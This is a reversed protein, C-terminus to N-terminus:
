FKEDKKWFNLIYQGIKENFEDESLNELFEKNRMAVEVGGTEGIREVVASVDDSRLVHLLPFPSRNVFNGRASKKEGEFRFEPHFTVVQFLGDMGDRKIEEDLMANFNYFKIFNEGVKPFVILSTRTGEKNKLGKLHSKMFEMREKFDTSESVIIEYLNSNWVEHAFPCLNQDLIVQKVWTEIIEIIQNKELPLEM